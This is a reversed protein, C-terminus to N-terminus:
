LVRQKKGTILGEDGDKEFVTVNKPMKVLRKKGTILGGDGDKSFGTVNPLTKYAASEQVLNTTKLFDSLPVM